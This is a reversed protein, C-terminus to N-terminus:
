AGIAEPIAHGRPHPTAKARADREPRLDDRAQARHMVRRTAPDFHDRRHMTCRNDWVVVDGITWAHHWYLFDQTAHAWLRELLAESEDVELGMVYANRRRGLYLCDHGTEPHTRVIPHIAGPCSRVDTVPEFGERLQGGANYTTDNKISLRDVRERLAPDLTDLALYMNAFGTNGGWAPLELAHLLSASPPRERYSTDSHWIVEDDALGGIPVGDEIVNSIVSIYKNDRPKQGKGVPPLEDLVGFRQGFATLEADTLRQGHIVLVLNDLWAQRLVAFTREDLSRVDLGHVEAGCAHPLPVIQLSDPM